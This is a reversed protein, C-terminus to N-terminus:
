SPTPASSRSPRTPSRGRPTPRWRPPCRSAPPPISRTGARCRPLVGRGLHAHQERHGRVRETGTERGVTAGYVVRAPIGQERLLLAMSTAFQTCFGERGDGLFEEIARDARRYSVDLNYTFGGDVVLYQEVARAADYPTARTTAREIQEATEAIIPPENGPFSCSTRRSRPPTPRARTGSNSPPRSPYRRSWRTPATRPWRSTSRGPGTPTRPRRVRRLDARDQLRRVPRRHPREPDRVGAERHPDRHGPRGGRRRRARSRHHRDLARRRLLRPHRRAVPAARHERGEHPGDGQRRHPLRRRRGARRAQEHGGDRHADLRHPGHQDHRGLLADQADRARARAGGSGRPCGRDPEDARGLFLLLAVASALFVAFFPGAGDEFSSTSLIGITVGLVAISVVPSREYLTASTAFAVVVMVVPVLVVFLGPHLDYPVPEAYMIAFAEYVDGGTRFYADRWGSLSFLPPMGYAAVYTYLVTAPLAARFPVQRVLGRARRRARGAGDDLVGGRGSGRRLLTRVLRLRGRHVRHRVRRRHRAGGRLPAVREWPGGVLPVEAQPAAQGVPWGRWVPPRRRAGHGRGDGAPRRVALVGDRPGAGRGRDGSAHPLHPDRDRGRRGLPGRRQLKRVAAPLEENRTRSIM